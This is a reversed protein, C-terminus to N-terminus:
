SKRTEEIEALRADDSEPSLGRQRDRRRQPPDRLRDLLWDYTHVHINSEQILRPRLVEPSDERRNMLHRRGVLVIGASQPRIDFLGLGGERRSRRARGRDSEIEERWHEIQKVGTRAAKEWEDHNDKERLLVSSTPTELEILWWTIGISDTDAIMFDPIHKGLDRRSLVYRDSGSLLLGLLEPKKELFEQIPQENDATDIIGELEDIDDPHVDGRVAFRKLEEHKAASWSARVSRDSARNEATRRAAEAASSTEAARHLVTLQDPWASGLGGKFYIRGDDGVSSVIAPPLSTSGSRRVLDGEQLKNRGLDSARRLLRLQNIWITAEHFSCPKPPTTDSDGALAEIYAEQEASPEGGDRSTLLARRVRTDRLVSPPAAADAVLAHVLHHLAVLRPTSPELAVNLISAVKAQADTM